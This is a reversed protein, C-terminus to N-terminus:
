LWVIKKNKLFNIEQLVEFYTTPCLFLSSSLSEGLYTKFANDDLSFIKSTLKLGIKSFYDCFNKAVDLLNSFTEDNYKIKEPASSKKSSSSLLSKITKRTKFM